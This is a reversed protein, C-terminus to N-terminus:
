KLVVTQTTGVQTGAANFFEVQVSAGAAQGPYVDAATGLPTVSSAKATGLYVQFSTATAYTVPASISVTVLSGFPATASTGTIVDTTPVVVPTTVTVVSTAVKAGDATTATVTATGASVATVVGMASVTAVAPNSSTWTVAQNTANAPAVTAVLAGTAGGVTLALTSNNLTVGTVPVLTAGGTWNVLVSGLKNTLANDSYIALTKSVASIGSDVAYSNTTSTTATSAVYTVNGDALTISVTGDVGTTLAVIPASQLHYATVGTVSASDYAPVEAVKYLPIPTNVTQMSTSSTTGMNVSSTIANGNVQTIWLGPIGTGVYLTQNAIANGYADQATFTLNQSGGVVSNVSSPSAKVAVLGGTAATFNETVTATKSNLSNSVTIVPNESYKDSSYVQAVEVPNYVGAALTATGTVAAYPAFASGNSVYYSAVMPQLQGTSSVNFGLFEEFNGPLNTAPVTWSTVQSGATGVTTVDVGIFSTLNSLNEEILTASGSTAGPLYGVVKYGPQAIWLKVNNASVEGVGNVNVTVNNPM